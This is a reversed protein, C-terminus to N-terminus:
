KTVSVVTYGKPLNKIYTDVQAKPVIYKMTSSDSLRITITSKQSMPLNPAFDKTPQSQVSTAAQTPALTPVNNVSVKHMSSKYFIVGLMGLCVVIILISPILMSGRSYNDTM